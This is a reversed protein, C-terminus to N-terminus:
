CRSRGRGGGVDDELGAHGDGQDSEVDASLDEEGPIAVPSGPTRGALAGGRSEDLAPEVDVGVAVPEVEAVRECDGGGEVRGQNFIAFCGDVGDLVTLLLAPGDGVVAGAVDVYGELDVGVACGLEDAVSQFRLFNDGSDDRAGLGGTMRTDQPQHSYLGIDNQVSRLAGVTMRLVAGVGVTMRLAACRLRLILFARM